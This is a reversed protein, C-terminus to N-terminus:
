GIKRGRCLAKTSAPCHQVAIDPEPWKRHIWRSTEAPQHGSRLM